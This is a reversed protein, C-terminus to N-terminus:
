IHEHVVGLNLLGFELIRDTMQEILHITLPPHFFILCIISGYFTFMAIMDPLTKKVIDGSELDQM